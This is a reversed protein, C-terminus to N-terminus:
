KQDVGEDKLVKQVGKDARMRQEFAELNHFGSMDVGAGKAWRLMVFLYPDAISRTGALWDCGSLQADLREFYGRLTKRAHAHSKEVMTEDDLYKTSGFLPKFAPHVDANLFGLWRNVEARGKPTGDGGLKSEPFTDALYNLIASNQTLVWDGDEFVPVAGAPNLKRFEPTARQERSVIQATYPKGIWELAIHDAMSCAGPSTYLKM